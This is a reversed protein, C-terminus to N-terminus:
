RWGWGGLGAVMMMRNESLIYCKVCFVKRYPLGLWLQIPGTLKIKTLDFIM